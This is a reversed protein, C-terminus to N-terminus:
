HGGFIAFCEQQADIGPEPRLDFCQGSIFQAAHVALDLKEKALRHLLAAAPRRHLGSLPVSFGSLQFRLGSTPPRVETDAAAHCAIPSAIGEDRLTGLREGKTHKAHKTTFGRDGDAGDTCDTTLSLPKPESGRDM